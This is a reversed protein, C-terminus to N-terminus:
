KYDVYAEDRIKQLWIQLEDAFKRDHLHNGAIRRRLDSTVDKDRRGLVQLIHWGYQSKFAPSIGDIKTNDMATQFAPVLQGPSTWSLDGGESATGIDESHERALEAFDEGKVVRERLKDIATRTAKEDRIASAKLLIHRAQTQAVVEGDGRKDALQIIHYGSTSKFPKATQGKALTPVKDALLSPLDKIKRWGLDSGGTKGTVQLFPTGTSIKKFLTEAQKSAKIEDGANAKGTLPILAHFVRYEAATLQKGEESGLFNEVEQDSIQIRRNVHGSQVRQLKMDRRIQERFSTYSQGQKELMAKFQAPTARNQRAIRAITQNLQEDSIRVGARRAMQLQISELVLQDLVERQLTKDDPGSKGSKAINDKVSTYRQQFESSLIVDDDVIAIVRDLMKPAPMSGTVPAAVKAKPAPAAAQSFAMSCLGLAAGVIIFSHRLTHQKFRYTM